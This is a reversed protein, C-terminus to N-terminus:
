EIYTQRDACQIVAGCTATGGEVVIKKSNHKTKSTGATNIAVDGHLPNGCRLIAGEVAVISGKVRLTGDQNSSIITGGHSSTDGVCAVKKAM